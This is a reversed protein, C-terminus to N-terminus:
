KNVPFLARVKRSTSVYTFEQNAIVVVIQLYGLFQIISTYIGCLFTSLLLNTQSLNNGRGGWRWALSQWISSDPPFIFRKQLGRLMEMGKAQMRCPQAMWNRLSDELSRYSNFCASSMKHCAVLFRCTNRTRPMRIPSYSCVGLGSWPQFEEGHQARRKEYTCRARIWPWKWLTNANIWLRMGICM